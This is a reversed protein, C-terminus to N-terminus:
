PAPCDEPPTCNWMCKPVECVNRCQQTAPCQLICTPENCVTTCAPCGGMPCSREPCSVHCQPKDCQMHCQSLDLQSCRTECIPSECIPQCVQDCYVDECKWSCQPTCTSSANSAILAVPAGDNGAGAHHPQSAASANSVFVVSQSRLAEIMDPKPLAPDESPLRPQIQLPSGM